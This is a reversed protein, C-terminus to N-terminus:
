LGINATMEQISVAVPGGHAPKDMGLLVVNDHAGGTGGVRKVREGGWQVAGGPHRGIFLLVHVVQREVFLEQQGRGGGAERGIM